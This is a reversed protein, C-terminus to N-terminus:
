ESEDICALCYRYKGSDYCFEPMGCCDCYENDTNIVPKPNCELSHLHTLYERKADILACYVSLMFEYGVLQYYLAKQECDEIEFLLIQSTKTAIM